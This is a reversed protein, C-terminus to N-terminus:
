PRSWSLAPSWSVAGSIALGGIALGGIV